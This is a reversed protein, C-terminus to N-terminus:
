PKELPRQRGYSIEPNCNCDSGRGTNMTKCWSDHAVFAHHVKPGGSSIAQFYQERTLPDCADRCVRAFKDARDQNHQSM